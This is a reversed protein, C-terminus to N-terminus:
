RAERKPQWIGRLMGWDRREWKKRLDFEEFVCERTAGLLLVRYAYRGQGRPLIVKVDCESLQSGTSTPFVAYCTEDKHFIPHKM